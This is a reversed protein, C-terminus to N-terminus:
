QLQESAGHSQLEVLAHYRGRLAMLDAHNGSEAVRGGWLVAVKDANRVTALRHAVVVATRGKM